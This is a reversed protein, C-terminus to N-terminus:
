CRYRASRITEQLRPSFARFAESDGDEIEYYVVPNVAPPVELGKVMSTVASVNAYKGDETHIVSLM